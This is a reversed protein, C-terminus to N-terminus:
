TPCWRTGLSRRSRSPAPTAAEIERALDLAAPEEVPLGECRIGYYPGLLSVGFGIGYGPIYIRGAYGPDYDQEAFRRGLMRISDNRFPYRTRLRDTM